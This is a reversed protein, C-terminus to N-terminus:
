HHCRCDDAHHHEQCSTAAERWADDDGEFEEVADFEGNEVMEVLEELSHAGEVWFCPIDPPTNPALLAAIGNHWAVWYGNATEIFHAEPHITENETNVLMREAVAKQYPLINM